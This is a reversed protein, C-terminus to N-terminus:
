SKLATIKWDAERVKETFLRCKLMNKIRRGDALKDSVGNEVDVGFPRVKKIAEYVNAATLGGALFVPAKAKRVIAACHEWDGPTGTGGVFFSDLLFADVVEEYSFNIMMLFLVRQLFHLLKREIAM